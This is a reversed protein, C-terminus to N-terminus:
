GSDGLYFSSIYGFVKAFLGNLNTAEDGLGVLRTHASEAFELAQTDNLHIHLGKKDQGKLGRPCPEWGTTSGV